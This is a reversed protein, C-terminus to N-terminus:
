QHTPGRYKGTLHCSCRFKKSNISKEHFRCIDIKKFVEEDEDAKVIDKKTNILFFNMKIWLKKVEDVFWDVIDYSLPSNCYGSQLLNNPETFIYYDHCVSIQRYTSNTKNEIWFSDMGIDAEFDADIRFNKRNM